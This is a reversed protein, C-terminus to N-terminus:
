SIIAIIVILICSLTNSAETTRPASTRGSAQRGPVQGVGRRVRVHDDAPPKKFFGKLPTQPGVGLMSIYVINIYPCSTCRKSLETTIPVITRVSSQRVPVQVVGRRVRVHVDAPLSKNFVIRDCEM